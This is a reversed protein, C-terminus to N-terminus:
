FDIGKRIERFGKGQRQFFFNVKRTEKETERLAPTPSPICVLSLLLFLM